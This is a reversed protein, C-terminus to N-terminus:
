WIKVSKIIEIVKIIGHVTVSITFFIILCNLYLILVAKCNPPLLNGFYSLGKVIFQSGVATNFTGVMESFDPFATSVILDVPILFIKTIQILFKFLGKFIANVM